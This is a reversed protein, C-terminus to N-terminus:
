FLQIHLLSYLGNFVVKKSCQLMTIDLFIEIDAPIGHAYLDVFVSALEGEMNQTFATGM